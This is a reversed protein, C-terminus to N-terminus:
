FSIVICRHRVRHIQLRCQLDLQVYNVAYRGLARSSCANQWRGFPDKVCDGRLERALSLDESLDM